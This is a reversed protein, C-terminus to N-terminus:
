KSNVAQVGATQLVKKYEEVKIPLHCAFCVIAHTSILTTCYPCKTITDPSDDLWDRKLGLQRAAIRELDSIERHQHNRMWLDDALRILNRFWRAQYAETEEKRSEFQPHKEVLGEGTLYFLGPGCDVDQAPQSIVYDYVLSRAIEESPVLMFESGRDADLFVTRKGDKVELFSYGKEGAAPIIYESPSLGPKSEKLQFPLLSVVTSKM